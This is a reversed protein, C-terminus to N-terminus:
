INELMTELVKVIAKRIPIGARMTGAKVHDLVPRCGPPTPTLRLKRLYYNGARVRGQARSANTEFVLVYSVSRTQCTEVWHPANQPQHLGRGPGLPFVHERACDRGKLEVQGINVVGRVYFRELESETLVSPSFVHYTKEGEIQAFFNIEPDFHFPTITAASSILVASELRVVRERGLGGRLDVVQRFLTDLLERFRLDHKEPRKLLVRYGGAELHDLAEYPSLGTHPVSYFAAEPSPAGGAVYFDYPHQGYKEALGRLCDSEFLDLACLNHAFGFPERNFSDRFTEPEIHLDARQCSAIM